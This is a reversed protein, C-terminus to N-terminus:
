KNGKKNKSDTREQVIRELSKAYSRIDNSFSDPNMVPTGFPFSGTSFKNQEDNDESTESSSPHKEYYIRSVDKITKATMRSIIDLLDKDAM